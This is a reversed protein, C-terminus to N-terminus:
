TRDIGYPPDPRRTAQRQRSLQDFIEQHYRDELAEKGSPVLAILMLTIVPCGGIWIILPWTLSLVGSGTPAPASHDMTFGAAAMGTYHMGSVALAMIPIAGAMALKSRVDRTVWLAATAAVVAIVVSLAVIRMDYHISGQVQMAAMGTYHMAAVGVGTILGALLLAPLKARSYGVVFMGVAVIGVAILLSLATLPINWSVESGEVTTGVMAIFHMAWIGTGGISVASWLLWLNRIARTGVWARSTCVLGLGCGLCSVLYALLPAYTWHGMGTEMHGM